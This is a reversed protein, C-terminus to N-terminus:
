NKLKEEIKFKLMELTEKKLQLEQLYQLNNKNLTNIARIKIFKPLSEIPSKNKESELYSVIQLAKLAEERVQTIKKIKVELEYEKFKIDKLEQLLWEHAKKKETEITKTVDVSYTKNKEVHSLVDTLKIKAPLPLDRRGVIFHAWQVRSTGLLMGMEEQTLGLLSKLNAENKM